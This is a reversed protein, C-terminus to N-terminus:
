SSRCIDFLKVIHKKPNEFYILINGGCLMLLNMKRVSVKIQSAPVALTSENDKKKLYRIGRYFNRNKTQLLVFACALSHPIVTVRFYIFHWYHKLCTQTTSKNMKQWGEGHFGTHQCQRQKSTIYAKRKAPGQKVVGVVINKLSQTM